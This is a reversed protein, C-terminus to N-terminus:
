RRSGTRPATTPPPTDIDDRWSLVRFPDEGFDRVLIVVEAALRRGDDFDVRVTVRAADGAEMTTGTPPPPGNQGAAARQSLDRDLREPSTAALAAVVEPAAVRVNVEARGSFVTLHPLAREILAPPLGLVLWLETVHAFPAGRPGYNFGARRYLSAERDQAGASPTTRWGIIREAYQGADDPRAGLVAFLAALLEKPAANLDIRATEARFAVVVNARGMRLALQGRAPRAQKPASVINYAALEVGAAVLGQTVVANDNIAVAMTTTRIYIAYISVLTALASLIWLVAVVIFGHSAKRACAAHHPASSM